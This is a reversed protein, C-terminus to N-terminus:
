FSHFNNSLSLVKLLGDYLMMALMRNDPDVFGRQGSEAERGVRDKVNGVAETTVKKNKVDYSLVSFHKKDTLVFLVDKTSSAPRYKDISLINGYLGLDFQAVLGEERFSHIELHSGKSLILNTDDSSTFQCVISHNVATSKQSTVVYSFAM